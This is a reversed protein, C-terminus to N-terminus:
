KTSVPVLKHPVRVCIRKLARRAPGLKLARRAPGAIVVTPPRYVAPARAFERCATASCPTSGPAASGAVLCPVGNEPVVTVSPVTAARPAKPQARHLTSVESSLARKLRPTVKVRAAGRHAPKPTATSSGCGALGLAGMLAVVVAATLVLRMVASRALWANTM